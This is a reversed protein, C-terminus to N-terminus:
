LNRFHSVLFINLRWVSVKASHVYASLYVALFYLSTALVLLRFTGQFVRSARCPPEPVKLAIGPPKNHEIKAM